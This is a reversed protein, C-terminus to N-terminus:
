WSGSPRASWLPTLAHVDNIDYPLAQVTGTATPCGCGVDGEQLAAPHEHDFQM